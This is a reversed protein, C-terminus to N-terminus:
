ICEYICVCASNELWTHRRQRPSTTPASPQVVGEQPEVHHHQAEGAARQRSHQIFGGVSDGPRRRLLARRRGGACILCSLDRDELTALAVKTGNHKASALAEPHRQPQKPCHGPELQRQPEINGHRSSSFGRSTTNPECSSVNFCINQNLHQWWILTM